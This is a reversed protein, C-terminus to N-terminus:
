FNYILVAQNVTIHVFYAFTNVNKMSLSEQTYCPGTDGIDDDTRGYLEESSGVQGRYKQCSRRKVSDSSIKATIKTEVQRFVRRYVM